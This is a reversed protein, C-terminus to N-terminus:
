TISENPMNMIILPMNVNVAIQRSFISSSIISNNVNNNNNNSIRFLRTLIMIIHDEDLIHIDKVHVYSKNLLSTMIYACYSVLIRFFTCNLSSNCEHEHSFYIYMKKFFIGGSHGRFLFM